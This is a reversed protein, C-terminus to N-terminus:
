LNEIFLYIRNTVTELTFPLFIPLLIEPFPRPPNGILCAIEQIPSSEFFSPKEAKKAGGAPANIM